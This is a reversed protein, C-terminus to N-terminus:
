LHHHMQKALDYTNIFQYTRYKNVGEGVVTHPNMQRALTYTKIRPLCTQYIAYKHTPNSRFIKGKSNREQTVQMKIGSM